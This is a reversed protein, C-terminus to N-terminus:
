PIMETPTQNTKATLVPTGRPAFALHLLRLENIADGREETDAPLNELQLLIAEFAEQMLDPRSAAAPTPSLDGLDGSGSLRSRLQSTAQLAARKGITEEPLALLSRMLPEFALWAPDKPGTEGALAAEAVKCGVALRQGVKRCIDCTCDSAWELTQIGKAATHTVGLAMELSRIRNAAAGMLDIAWGPLVIEEDAGADAPFPLLLQDVLTKTM